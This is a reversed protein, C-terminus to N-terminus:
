SASPPETSCPAADTSPQAAAKVHPKWTGEKIAKARDRNYDPNAARFKEQARRNSEKRRLAREEESLKVRKPKTTELTDTPQM